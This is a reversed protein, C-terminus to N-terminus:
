EPRKKRTGTLGGLADSLIRTFLAPRDEHSIADLEGADLWMGGCHTCIEIPVNHHTQTVLDHGDKPCKMYHTRREAEVAAAEASARQQKLLEADRLVFYEDENKSPKETM